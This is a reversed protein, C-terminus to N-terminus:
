ERVKNKKQENSSTIESFQSTDNLVFEKLLLEKLGLKSRSYRSFLAGKIVEPLNKLVFIDHDTNSVFNSILREQEKDM